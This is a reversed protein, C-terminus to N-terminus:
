TYSGAIFLGKICFRIIGICLDTKTADGAYDGKSYKRRSELYNNYKKIKECSRCEDLWLSPTYGKNKLNPWQAYAHQCGNCPKKM